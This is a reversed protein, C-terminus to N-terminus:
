PASAREEGASAGSHFAARAVRNKVFRCRRKAAARQLSQENGLVGGVQKGESFLSRLTTEWRDAEWGLRTFISATQSDLATKGPRLLRSSWDVLRCYCSLTFGPLLGSEGASGHAELSGLWHEKELEPTSTQTSLGDQLKQLGDQQRVHEICAHFSTHQSTEPTEAVGAAVPNLDIYACTTLLSEEDLIAVSKYRSEWFVGRCNDEKNAMRALPEKLCKMFWGLNCLRTRANQLWKKDQMRLDIWADTAELPQGDQDRLPFLRTWRRAIEEDSWEALRRSDLKVLIHLHNDMIAYGYCEIAFISCLEQLRQEIWDKRHEYGEGCLFARRVCRSICHYYPTLSEDVLESRATTM